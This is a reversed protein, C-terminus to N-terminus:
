ISYYQKKILEDCYYVGETTQRNKWVKLKDGKKFSIPREMKYDLIFTITIQGESVIKNMDLKSIGM